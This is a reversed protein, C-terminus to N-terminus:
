AVESSLYYQAIKKHLDEPRFPKQLFDVFGKKRLYEKMDPIVAATFAIAPTNPNMKKIQALAEYGDMVPMDLDILLVDFEQDNFLNVAEQGNTAEKVKVDWRQLFKRTIMMNVPSDEAVLIRMGKLSELVGVKNENVFSSTAQSLAMRITFFFESGEGVKSKVELKGGFMSVIRKSIALGLGTGGFRRTTSTEGQNFAKFIVELKEESMGIGTDVVSFKIEAGLNDYSVMKAFVQVSGEPTFKLANGILNALVQNMKTLDGEFNKDLAPDINFSFRLGKEEFQNQFITQIKELSSRMNFMEKTLEMKGAEMKSFDLVDNILGLMHESSYKLVKYHQKQEQLLPEQLLLNVTGIIGNLPTRLEHSMSSLFRSKAQVAAEAKIKEESLERKQKELETNIRMLNEGTRNVLSVIFVIYSMTVGIAMSYNMIRILATWKEELNVAMFLQHPISFACICCVMTVSLNLLASPLDNKIDYYLAYSVFVPFYFVIFYPGVNLIHAVFFLIISLSSLFVFRATNYWGIKNCYFGVMGSVVLASSM